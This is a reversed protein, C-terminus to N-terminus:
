KNLGLLGEPLSFTIKRRREDIAVIFEEAAPILETATQGVARGRMGTGAVAVGASSGANSGEVVDVCGDVGEHVGTCAVAGAGGWGDVDECIGTGAGGSPCAIEVEFLPNMDSDIFATIRGTKPVVARDGDAADIFDATWGVIDEFFLEDDAVDERDEGPIYFELGVLESARRETDIDEFVATAGRQGRRKISAFFLPIRHGDLRVFVPDEMNPERSFADYLALTLEGKSGYLGAIRGAKQLGRITEPMAGDAFGDKAARAGGNEGFVLGNAGDAASERAIKGDAGKAAGM